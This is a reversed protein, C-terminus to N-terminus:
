GVKLRVVRVVAPSELTERRINFVTKLYWMWMRSSRVFLLLRLPFFLMVTSMFVAWLILVSLFLHAGVSM